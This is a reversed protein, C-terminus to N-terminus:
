LRTATMTLSNPPTAYSPSSNCSQPLTDRTQRHITRVTLRVVDAFTTVSVLMAAVGAISTEGGRTLESKDEITERGGGSRVGESVKAVLVGGTDIASDGAM